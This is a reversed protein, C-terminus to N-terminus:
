DADNEGEPNLARRAVAARNGAYGRVSTWDDMYEDRGAKHAIAFLSNTAAVLAERLRRIEADKEETVVRLAIIASEKDLSM